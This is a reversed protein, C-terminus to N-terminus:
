ATEFIDCYEFYYSMLLNIADNVALTNKPKTNSLIFEFVLNNRLKLPTKNFKRKGKLYLSNFKRRLEEKEFGSGYLFFEDIVYHNIRGYKLQTKYVESLRNFIIKKEFNPDNPISEKQSDSQYSMVYNIVENLTDFEIESYSKPEIIDTKLVKLMCDLNLLFFFKELKNATFLNFEIQPYNLSLDALAAQVTPYVGRYQDNLVFNYKNIVFKPNWYDYLGKFDTNLKKIIKNEKGRVSEPSYVQFYEGIKKNFGDNKKDGYQGQPKVKEFDADIEQMIDCFFDEFDQERKEYICYKFKYYAVLKQYRNLPM